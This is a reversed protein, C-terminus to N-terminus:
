GRRSHVVKMAEVDLDAELKAIYGQLNEAKARLAIIVQPESM